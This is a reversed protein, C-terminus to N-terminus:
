IFRDFTSYKREYKKKLKKRHCTIKLEKVFGKIKKKKKSTLRNQAETYHCDPLFWHLWRVSRHILQNKEEIETKSTPANSRRIPGQISIIFLFISVYSSCSLLSSRTYFHCVCQFNLSLSLSLCICM